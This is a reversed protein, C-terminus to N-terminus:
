RVVFKYVAKGNNTNLNLFYVGKAMSNVPIAYVQEGGAHNFQEMYVVKGMVDVVKANIEQADEVSIAVNLNESAPNPYINVNEFVDRNEVGAIQWYALEFGNGEEWNDAVFKIYVNAGDVNFAQNLTPMNYIDYRAVLETPTAGQSKYIDVFDGAKLDFKEFAFTYGVTYPVRLTWSCTTNARYPENSGVEDYKKDTLVSHWSNNIVQAEICSNTQNFAKVAYELVFGYDTESNEASTFVVLVSDSNVTVAAPLDQGPFDAHIGYYDSCAAMRYNGTFTGKIGSAETGGNYIVVKDGEKLKLKAFKLTYSNANPCALTWRRNSNPAYKVHGAGDSITGSAATVRVDSVAPKVVLNTDGPCLKIMMSESDKKNFNGYSPSIQDTLLFFGNGSGAWGWNVHFYPNEVTDVLATIYGDVIWAHGGAMESTGSFFLPRHADLEEKAMDIWKYALSASTVVDTINKYQAAQSYSFNNQLATLAKESQSGSGDFGYSMQVSVGSHYILKALEGTYNSISNPMADYNYTAEYFNVDQIPYTYILEGTEDDYEKPMYITHGYGTAPYRYYNMINAMTLAVCGVPTRFDNGAPTNESRPNTPCYQNYYPFQDWTATILPEVYPTLKADKAAFNPTSMYKKWAPNPTSKGPNKVMFSISEKYKECYFDAGTGTKYNSELSYALVPTVLDTASIIIFGKDGIQFRYFVANGEEDYQTYALTYEFNQANLSGMRESLFNKSVKIADSVPVVNTAYGLSFVAVLSM